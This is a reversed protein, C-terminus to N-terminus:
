TTRKRVRAKKGIRDRLYYLKARRIRGKSAIELKEIMPSHLPFTREVGEGFSIKRVTFTEGVGGGTKRIVTGQYPHSRVKGAEEVRIRMKVTDGVEIEPLDSRLQKTRVMHLKEASSAM